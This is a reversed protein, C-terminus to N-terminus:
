TCVGALLMLQHGDKCDQDWDSHLEGGWAISAVGAALLSKVCNCCPPHTVYVHSGEISIGHRACHGVLNAEAHIAFRRMWPRNELREDEDVVQPPLGNFGTALVRGEPSVACAGVKTTIVKSHKAACQAHDKAIHKVTERRLVGEMQLTELM